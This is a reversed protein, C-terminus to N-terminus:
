PTVEANRDAATRAAVWMDRRTEGRGIGARQVGEFAFGAKEAVRRSAYNGVEARWEIRSLGLEVFGWRSIAGLAATAYGRGRARPSILFGVEGVAPDAPSIRLDVSGAYAHDPDVVAFVAEVGRAWETPVHERVYEAAHAETYPQPGGFWRASEPDRYAAAIGPEDARVPRRLTVPGQSLVPHDHGFAYATRRVPDPLEFEPATVQGPLLWGYWEDVRTGDRRRLESPVLGATTFGLRLAILRSAHNGVIAHWDVRALELNTFGWTLLARGARETIRRGRAWPASWYGLEAIRAKKRISHLATSGLFEGTKADVIAGGFATGDNFERRSAEVHEHAHEVRYPVPASNSWHSIAADDRGRVIDEADTPRWSRLLLDDDIRIELPEV